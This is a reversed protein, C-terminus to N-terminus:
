PQCNHLLLFFSLPLSSLTHFERVPCVFLPASPRHTVPKTMVVSESCFSFFGAGSWKWKWREVWGFGVGADTEIEVGGCALFGGDRSLEGLYCLCHAAAAFFKGSLVNGKGGEEM